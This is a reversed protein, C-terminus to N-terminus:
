WERKKRVWERKGGLQKENERVREKGGERGGIQGCTM